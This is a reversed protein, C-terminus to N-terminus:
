CFLKLQKLIRLEFGWLESEVKYDLGKQRRWTGEGGKWKVLCEIKKENMLNIEVVM